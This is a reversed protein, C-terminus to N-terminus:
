AGGTEPFSYRLYASADQEKFRRELLRRHLKYAQIGKDKFTWLTLDPASSQSSERDTSPFLNAKILTNRLLSLKILRERKEELAIAEEPSLEFREISPNEKIIKKMEGELKELVEPTFTVDSDFDYYFGNDVAPGITLKAEPYLRKVAQALVHPHVTVSHRKVTRM